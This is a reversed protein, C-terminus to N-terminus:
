SRRAYFIPNSDEVEVIEKKDWSDPDLALSPFRQTKCLVRIKEGKGHWDCNGEQPSSNEVGSEPQQESQRPGAEQQASSPHLQRMEGPVSLVPRETEKRM